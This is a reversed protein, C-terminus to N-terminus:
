KILRVPLIVIFWFLFSSFFKKLFRLFFYVCNLVSPFIEWFELLWNLIRPAQWFTVHLFDWVSSACIDSVCRLACMQASRRDSHRVTYLSPRIPLDAAARSSLVRTRTGSLAHTNTGQIINHTTCTAGEAVLQENTWFLGVPHTHEVFAWVSRGLGSKPQEAVSLWTVTVTSSREALM